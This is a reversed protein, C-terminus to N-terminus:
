LHEFNDEACDSYAMYNHRVTTAEKVDKGCHNEGSWAMPTRYVDGSISESDGYPHEKYADLMAHGVEHMATQMHDYPQGVGYSDYGYPLGDIGAENSDGRGGESVCYQDDICRGSGGDKNTILLNADGAISISDDCQVKDKWWQTLNDYPREFGCPSMTTFSSGEEETPASILESGGRVNANHYSEYDFCGQIYSVARDRSRFGDGYKDDCYQYLNLTTHVTIGFTKAM